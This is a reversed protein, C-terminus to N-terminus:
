WRVGELVLAFAQTGHLLTLDNVHPWKLCMKVFGAGKKPSQAQDMDLPYIYNAGLVYSDLRASNPSTHAKLM